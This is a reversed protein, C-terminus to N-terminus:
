TGTPAARPGETLLAHTNDKGSEERTWLGSDPVSVHPWLLVTGFGPPWGLDWHQEQPCSGSVSALATLQDMTLQETGRRGGM